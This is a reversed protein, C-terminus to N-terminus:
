GSLRPPPLPYGNWSCVPAASARARLLRGALLWSGLAVAWGAAVDLVDHEGLCIVSFSMMVAYSGSALALRRDRTRSALRVLVVTAVHVSPLAAFHNPEFRFAGSDVGTRGDATVRPGFVDRLLDRTIRTVEGPQAM